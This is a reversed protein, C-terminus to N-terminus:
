GRRKGPADIARRLRNLNELSGLADNPKAAALSLVLAELGVLTAGLRRAPGGASSPQEQRSVHNRKRSSVLITPAM